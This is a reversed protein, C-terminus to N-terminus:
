VKKVSSSSGGFLGQPRTVLVIMIVLFPAVALVNSGLTFGIINQLVGVTIGGVIAGPLNSFGGIVAAAIAFMMINGMEPTILLKSGLLVGALGAICAGVAWVIARMRGIPIGVLVAARANQSTAQLAKGILTRSFFFWFGAIIAITVGVVVIDQRPIVLQGIFIPPGRWVTPLRYVDDSYPSVRILGKIIYSLGFTAIVIPILAADRTRGANRRVITIIATREFAVGVAFMAIGVVLFAVAYNADASTLLFLGLYAGAMVLDGAAFNVAESSKYVFVISVAVLAYVCGTVVGSVAAQLLGQWM